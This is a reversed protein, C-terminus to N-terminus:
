TQLSATNRTLNLCYDNRNSTNMGNIKKENRKIEHRSGRVYSLLTLMSSTLISSSSALSLTSIINMENYHEETSHKFSTTDKQNWANEDPFM